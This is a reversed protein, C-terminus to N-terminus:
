KQRSSDLTHKATKLKKLINMLHNEDQPDDDGDDEAAINVELEPMDAVMAQVGPKTNATAMLRTGTSRIVTIEVASCHRCTLYVLRPPPLASEFFTKKLKERTDQLPV